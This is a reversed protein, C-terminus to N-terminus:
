CRMTVFKTGLFVVCVTVTLLSISLVKITTDKESIKQTYNKKMGETTTEFNELAKKYAEYTAAAVDNAHDTIKNQEESLKVYEQLTINSLNM